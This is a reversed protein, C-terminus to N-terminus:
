FAKGHKYERAANFAMKAVIAAPLRWGRAYAMDMIRIIADAMEEEAGTFTPIHDSAPNGHRIYELAESIESHILAIMEGNNREQDWFGHQRATEHVQAATQMWPEELDSSLRTLRPNVLDETYEPPEFRVTMGSNMMWSLELLFDVGYRYKGIRMTRDTMNLTFEAVNLLKYCLWWIPHLVCYCFRPFRRLKEGDKVKFVSYFLWAEFWRADKWVKGQKPRKM